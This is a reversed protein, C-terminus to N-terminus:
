LRSRPWSSLTERLVLFFGFSLLSAAYTARIDTHLAVFAAIRRRRKVPMCAAQVHIMTGTLGSARIKGFSAHRWTSPSCSHFPAFNRFIVLLLWRFELSVISPVGLTALRSFWKGKPRTEKGSSYCGVDYEDVWTGGIETESQNVNRKGM